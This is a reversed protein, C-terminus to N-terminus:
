CAQPESRRRGRFEVFRDRCVLRISPRTRFSIALGSCHRRPLWSWSGSVFAAVPEDDQDALPAFCFAFPRGRCTPKSSDRGLDLRFLGVSLCQSAIGRRHPQRIAKSMAARPGNLYHHWLAAAADYHALQERHREIRQSALQEIAIKEVDSLREGHLKSTSLPLHNDPLKLSSTSGSSLQRPYTKRPHTKNSSTSAMFRTSWDDQKFSTSRMFRTSWDDQKFSTSRM